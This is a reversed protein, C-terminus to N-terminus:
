ISKSTYVFKHQDYLREFGMSKYVPAGMETAYLAVPAVYNQFAHLLAAEVVKRAFGRLRFEPLTGVNYIVVQGDQAYYSCCSVPQDQYYGIFRPESPKASVTSRLPVFESRVYQEFYPSVEQPVSFATEFPTLWDRTQSEKSLLFVEFDPLDKTVKLKDQSIAMCVNAGAHKFGFDLLSRHVMPPEETLVGVYWTFSNPGFREVVSKLEEVPVGGARNYLFVSNLWEVTFIAKYGVMTETRWTHCDLIGDYCRVNGLHTQEINQSLTPVMKEALLM